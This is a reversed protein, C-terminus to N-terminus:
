RDGRRLHETDVNSDPFPTPPSRRAPPRLRRERRGPPDPRGLWRRLPRAASEAAAAIARAFFGWQQYSAVPLPAFAGSGGPGIDTVPPSSPTAPRRRGTATAPTWARATSYTRWRTSDICRNSASGKGSSAHGAYQYYDETPAIAQVLYRQKYVEHCATAFDWRGAPGDRPGRIRGLGDFGKVAQGGLNVFPTSFIFAPPIPRAASFQGPATVRRGAAPAISTCMARTSPSAPGLLERRKAGHHREEDFTGIWTWNGRGDSLLGGSLTLTPGGPASLLRLRGSWTTATSPQAPRPNAGTVDQFQVDAPNQAAAARYNNFSFRRTSSGSTLVPGYLDTSRHPASFAKGASARLTLQDDRPSISCTSRRCGPAASGATSTWGARWTSKWSRYARSGSPPPRSRFRSRATFRPPSRTRQASFPVCRFRTPGASTAPRM